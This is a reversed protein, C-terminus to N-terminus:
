SYLVEGFAALQLVQDACDDDFQAADPGHLILARVNRQTEAGVGTTSRPLTNIRQMQRVVEAHTVRYQQSNQQEDIFDLTWAGHEEAILVNSYWRYRLAGSGLLLAHTDAATFTISTSTM